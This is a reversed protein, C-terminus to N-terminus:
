VSNVTGSLVINDNVSEAHIKVGPMQRAFQGNLDVVDSGVDIELTAIHRGAADLFIANTQGLKLSMLFIRRPNRVVAVGILPNAVFVDRADSDLEVVAAKNLALSLHQPAGNPSASIKIIRSEGQAVAPSFFQIPPRAIPQVAPG